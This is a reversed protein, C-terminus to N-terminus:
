STEQAEFYLGVHLGQIRFGLGLLRQGQFVERAQSCSIRFESAM